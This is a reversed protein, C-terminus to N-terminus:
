GLIRGIWSLIETRGTSNHASSNIIPVETGAAHLMAAAKKRAQVLANGSLKDVKTLVVMRPVDCGTLLHTVEEDTRLSPHRSDILHLVLRLSPRERLYRSVAQAWAQREVKSVKAFGFGPADVLYYSGDVRYFNFTRTKGPKGSMHALARRQALMNLLSSKGVNSRGVLVVEPLGDDPMQALSPASTM